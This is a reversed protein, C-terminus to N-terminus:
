QLLLLLLTELVELSAIGCLDDNHGITFEMQFLVVEHHHLKSAEGSAGHQQASGSDEAPGVERWDTRSDM